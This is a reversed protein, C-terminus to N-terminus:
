SPLAPLFGNIRNLCEQARQAGSGKQPIRRSLAAIEALDLSDAIIVGHNRAVTDAGSQFGGHGFVLGVIPGRVAHFWQPVIAEIKPEGRHKVNQLTQLFEKMTGVPVPDKWKKCQGVVRLPHTGGAFLHCRAFPPVITFFDIGGENGPPTLHVNASGALQSIVCGLAEYQRDSLADIMRLMAPRHRLRELMHEEARPLAQPSGVGCWALTMASADIVDFSRRLGKQVDEGQRQLLLNWFASLNNEAYAEALDSPKGLVIQAGQELVHRLAVVSTFERRYLWRLIEPKEPRPM